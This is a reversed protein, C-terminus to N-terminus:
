FRYSLTAMVTNTTIKEDTRSSSDYNTRFTDWWGRAYSVDFMTSPGLLFGVGGTLYKQDFSSPDDAYPSTYYMYGARLRVGIKTFDYELGTRFNLTGRFITKMDKNQAIVDANANEFKLQTWDTAEIDGSVMLEQLMVSLGASFVWPTVVDYQGSGTTQFPKDSPYVDGNDFTARATTGFNEKVTFSTPTKIGIGLRFRDPIRYMLGFKANSGSIDGEIYEDVTLKSFDYPFADWNHGRDEENYMRDYRYTGSLYTLTVGLSLDKAIDLAGAISWNNLGGSEVVKAIQTVKGTIPSQFRGTLTDIDALYLQYALNDSLDSPYFAGNRAYTQIISSGPNFGTFSMGGSFNSQRDFGFALVMSGRRTPIKYVLGLSNLNTSSTTYAEQANFFTSNDKNNNYTLGFSFESFQLQALGAPNWYIASFDNAVGTYANGMGLSRSGVGAGSLGLRLADEPYQGYAQLSTLALAAACAIVSSLNLKM